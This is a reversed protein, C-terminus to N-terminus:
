SAFCTSKMKMVTYFQCFIGFLEGHRPLDDTGLVLDDAYTLKNIFHNAIKCGIRSNAVAGLM